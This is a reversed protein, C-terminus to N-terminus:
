RVLSLYGAIVVMQSASCTIVVGSLSWQRSMSEWNDRVWQGHKGIFGDYEKRTLAIKHKRPTPLPSTLPAASPASVMFSFM